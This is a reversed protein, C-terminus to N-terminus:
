EELEKTRYHCQELDREPLSALLQYQPLEQRLLTEGENTLQDVVLDPMLQAPKIDPLKILEAFHRSRPASRDSERNYYTSQSVGPARAVEQGSLRHTQRQKRMLTGFKM